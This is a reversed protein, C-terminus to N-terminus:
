MKINYKCIEKVFLIPVSLTSYGPWSQNTDVINRINPPSGSSLRSNRKLNELRTHEPYRHIRLSWADTLFRFKQIFKRCLWLDKVYYLLSLSLTTRWSTSEIKYACLSMVGYGLLATTAVTDRM